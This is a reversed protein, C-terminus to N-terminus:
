QRKKQLENFKRIQEPTAKKHAVPKAVPKKKAAKEEALAPLAISFALAICLAKM